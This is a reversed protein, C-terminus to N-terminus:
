VALSTTAYIAYLWRRKKAVVHIHKDAVCVVVCDIFTDAVCVAVCVALCVAVRVAGREAVCISPTATHTQLECQLV